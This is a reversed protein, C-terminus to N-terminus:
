RRIQLVVSRGDGQRELLTMGDESIYYFDRSYPAFSTIKYGTETEEYSGNIVRLTGKNNIIFTKQGFSDLYATMEEGMDWDPTQDDSDFLRAFIGGDRYFAAQGFRDRSLDPRNIHPGAVAYTSVAMGKKLPTVATAHTDYCYLVGATARYSGELFETNQLYSFVKYAAAATLGGWLSHTMYSLAEWWRDPNQARFDNSYGINALLLEGYKEASERKKSVSLAGAAPGFGANDYFHETIAAAYSDAGRHVRDMMKDWLSQITQLKETLEKEKLKILLDEFYLFYVGLMQSEEKGREDEHLDPNVRLEFVDAAWELYTDATYLELIQDDFESLLYFLHGIYEFDMCRYFDGYLKRPKKFDGDKFWKPRVYEVASKEVKRVQDVDLSGLLNKKLVLNLKGLSEGQNSVPKFAFPPNGEKGEYLEDCIYAVREDIVRDLKDMVNMVVFDKTGDSFKIVAKHEGLATPKYSLHYMEGEYKVEISLSKVTDNEKFLAEASLIKLSESVEVTLRATEGIINLPTYDVKPHNLKLGKELFEEQNRNINVVYKWTRDEEAKLMFGDKKYIWDKNQFGEPYGGAFYLKHFLMGDLSPSINEFFLNEYDCYTGISLAEGEVQYFGLNGGRNDRRVANLKTYNDSISSFVAASNHINRLVEKDRFMVYAFSIWVGFDSIWIDKKEQNVLHITWHLEGDNKGMDYIMIIKMNGFDYTVTIEAGEKEIVPSFERSNRQKGDATIDFYGFLKDADQYGAQSLYAEEIVWNMKYPDDKMTLKSIYGKESIMMELSKNEIKIDHKM